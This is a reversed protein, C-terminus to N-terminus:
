KTYLTQYASISVHSWFLNPYSVIFRKAGYTVTFNIQVHECLTTTKLWAWKQVLEINANHCLLFYTSVAARVSLNVSFAPLPLKTRFKQRLESLKIDVTITNNKKFSVLRHEHGRVVTENGSKPLHSTQQNIQTSTSLIALHVNCLYHQETHKLM